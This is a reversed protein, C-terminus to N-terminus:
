LRLVYWQILSCSREESYVRRLLCPGCHQGDAHKMTSYLTSRSRIMYAGSSQAGVVVKGGDGGFDKAYTRISKLALVLDGMGLNPDSAAKSSSPPLFGFVGLRYQPVIVIINGETALKSGVLGPASASGSIFSGGHVRNTLEHPDSVSSWSV